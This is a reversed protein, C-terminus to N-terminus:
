QNIAAVMRWVDVLSRGVKVQGVRHAKGSSELGRLTMRVSPLELEFMSALDAALFERCGVADLIAGATMRRVIPMTSTVKVVERVPIELQRAIDAPRVGAKHKAAIIEQYNM